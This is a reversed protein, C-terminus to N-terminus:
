PLTAYSKRIFCRSRCCIRPLGDRLLGDCSRKMDVGLRDFAAHSGHLFAVCIGQAIGIVFIDCPFNAHINHFSNELHVVVSRRKLDGCLDPM